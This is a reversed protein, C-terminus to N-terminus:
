SEEKLLNTLGDFSSRADSFSGIMLTFSRTVMQWAALRHRREGRVKMKPFFQPNRPKNSM